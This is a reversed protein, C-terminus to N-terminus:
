RAGSGRYYQGFRAIAKACPYPTTYRTPGVLSSGLSKALNIRQGEGGSLTSSMRSLTLYGLGVDQMFQLRSQIETILPAYAEPLQWNDVVVQLSSIPMQCLQTISQGEILVYEAEKRLRKSVCDPCIAKGRYRSLM